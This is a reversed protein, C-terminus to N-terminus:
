QYEIARSRDRPVVFVGRIANMKGIYARSYWLRGRIQFRDEALRTGMGQNLLSSYWSDSM